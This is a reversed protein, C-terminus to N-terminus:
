KPGYCINYIAHIVTSLYITGNINRYYFYSMTKIGGIYSLVNKKMKQFGTIKRQNNKSVTKYFLRSKQRSPRTTLHQSSISIMNLIPLLITAVKQICGNSHLLTTNLALSCMKHNNANVPIFGFVVFFLM